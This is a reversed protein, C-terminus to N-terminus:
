IFTYILVIRYGHKPYYHYHSYGDCLTAKNREPIVVHEKKNNDIYVTKSEPDCNNLYMLLVKHPYDHDVHIPCRNNEENINFTLNLSCRYIESYKINNNFCFNDFIDKFLPYFGSNIEESNNRLEKVKVVCHEFTPDTKNGLASKITLYFPIEKDEIIKDITSLNIKSIANKYTKFM